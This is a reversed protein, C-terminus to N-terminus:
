KKEQPAPAAEPDLNEPEAKEEMAQATSAAAEQSPKAVPPEVAQTKPAPEAAKVKKSPKSQPEEKHSPSSKKVKRGGTLSATDTPEIHQGPKLIATVEGLSTDPLVSILKVEALQEEGRLILATGNIKAGDKEGIPLLYIREEEITLITGSSAVDEAAAHHPVWLGAFLFLAFYAELFSQYKLRM